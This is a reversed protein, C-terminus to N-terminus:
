GTFPPRARSVSRKSPILLHPLDAAVLGAHIAIGDPMRRERHVGRRKARQSMPEDILDRLEEFRQRATRHGAVFRRRRHAVREIERARERFRPRVRSRQQFPRCLQQEIVRQEVSVRAEEPVDGRRRRRDPNEAVKEGRRDVRVDAGPRQRRGGGLDLRLRHSPDGVSM